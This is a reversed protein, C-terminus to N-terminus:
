SAAAVAELLPATPVLRLDTMKSGEASAIQMLETCHHLYLRSAGVVEMALATPRCGLDVIAAAQAVAGTKTMGRALM